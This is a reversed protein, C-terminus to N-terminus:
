FFQCNPLGLTSLMTGFRFDRLHTEAARGYDRRVNGARLHTECNRSYVCDSEVVVVNAENFSDSLTSGLYSYALTTCTPGWM